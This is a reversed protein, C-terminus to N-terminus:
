QYQTITYRRVFDTTSGTYYMYVGDPSFTIGSAASETAEIDIKDVPIAGTLTWPTPLTYRTINGRTEGIIYLMTGDSNLWIGTTATQGTATLSQVTGTTTIDWPTSMVYRNIGSGTACTYLYTGSQDIFLGLGGSLSRTRKPTLNASTIDWARALDHEYVVGLSTSVFVSSGNPNFFLGTPNTLIPASGVVTASNLDWATSLNYEIVNDNGTGCLYLKRGDQRVFLDTPNTETTKTTQDPNAFKDFVDFATKLELQDITDTANDLIYMKKGDSSFDIGYGVTIDGSPVEYLHLYNTGVDATDIRWPTTLTFVRTNDTDSDIVFMRTGNSSFRVERPFTLSTTRSYTFTGGSITAINWATGLVYQRVTDATTGVIYMNLGDPSFALGWPTGEGGTVSFTTIASASDVEWATSLSFSRVLDDASGLIFMRTGDTSFFISAMNLTLAFSKSFTATSIDWATSLNFQRVTNSVSGVVYLRTGNNGFCFGQPNTETTITLSKETRFGIKSTKWTQETNPLLNPWFNEVASNFQDYNYWIGINSQPASPVNRKGILKGNTKM